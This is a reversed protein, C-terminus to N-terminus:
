GPVRSASSSDNGIVGCTSFPRSNFNAHQVVQIASHFINRGSSTWDGVRAIIRDRAGEAM